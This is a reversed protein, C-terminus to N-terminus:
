AAAGGDTEGTRMSWAPDEAQGARECIRCYERPGCRCLLTVHSDSGTRRVVDGGGAGSWQPTLTYAAGAFRGVILREAEGLDSGTLLLVPQEATTATVELTNRRVAGSMSNLLSDAVLPGHTRSEACLALVFCLALVRRSAGNIETAPMARGQHNLAFIEFRDGQEEVSRVGVRAIMRVSERADDRLWPEEAGVNAAMQAFLRNMRASLESVQSEQVERYARKLVGAGREAIAQASLSERGVAEARHKSSLTKSVTELAKGIDALEREHMGTALALQDIRKETAAEADRLSRVKNEDIAGIKENVDRLQQAAADIERNATAMRTGRSRQQRLWANAPAATLLANSSEYLEGQFGATAAMRDGRDFQEQVLRRRESGDLLEEGCVCVAEDLLRRVFPLHRLPIAGAEYRPQLGDVVRGLVPVALSALLRGDELGSALGALEEDRRVSARELQQEALKKRQVLSDYAGARMMEAHLEEKSEALQERLSRLEERERAVEERLRHQEAEQRDKERQLEEIEQSGIAKSAERGLDRALRDLRGAAKEFVQIGLLSRIAFTTMEEVDGKKMQKAETGGVFDVAKDADMVFFDRLAHPLLHRVVADPGATEPRWRGNQKQVMLLTKEEVRVFDPEDDKTAERRITRVSRKLRYRSRGDGPIPDHPSSGDTEFEISVETEIGEDDPTWSAPHVRFRGARGPLGEEGYMGWLLARLFTTKGSGNEARIVTLPREPDM